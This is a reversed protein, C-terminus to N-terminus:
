FQLYCMDSLFNKLSTFPRRDFHQLFHLNSQDFLPTRKVSAARVERVQERASYRRHRSDIELLRDLIFTESKIPLIKESQKRSRSSLPSLDFLSHFISIILHFIVSLPLPFLTGRSQGGHAFSLSLSFNPAANTGM